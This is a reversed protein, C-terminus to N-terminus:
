LTLAVLLDRLDGSHIQSRDLASKMASPVGESLPDLVQKVSKRAAAEAGESLM